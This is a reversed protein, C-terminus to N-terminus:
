KFSTKVTMIRDESDPPRGEYGPYQAPGAWMTLPLPAAIFAGLAWIFPEGRPRLPGLKTAPAALAPEGGKERPGPPHNPMLAEDINDVSYIVFRSQVTLFGPRM